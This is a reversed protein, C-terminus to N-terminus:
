ILVVFGRGKLVCNESNVFCYGGFKISQLSYVNSLEFRRFGKFSEDGIELQHLSPCNSIRCVGDEREEEKENVFCKVGIKVSELADLRALVFERVNEFCYSGCKVTQLSNVNTLELRNFNYCSRKNCKLERLRPCNAIRCLGGERRKMMMKKKEREEKEEKEEEEDEEEVIRFCEFGIIVSELMGLGDLVFECVNEFCYDGINIHRLQVLAPSLHLSTISPSNFLDEGVLLSNASTVLLLEDGHMLINDESKLLVHDNMWDGDYEIVGSLNYAKGYGYRVGNLYRGEYTMSNKTYIGRYEKGYSVRTNNFMFGEFILNNEDNYEKGYGCCINNLAGGEWRRGTSDLDVDENESMGHLNFEVLESEISNAILVSILTMEADVIILEYGSRENESFQISITDFTFVGQSTGNALKAFSTYRVSPNSILSKLVSELTFTLIASANGNKEGMVKSLCTMSFESYKDNGTNAIETTCKEVFLEM